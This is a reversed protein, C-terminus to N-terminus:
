KRVYLAEPGFADITTEFFPKWENALEDPSPPFQRNEFQYGNLVMWAEWSLM